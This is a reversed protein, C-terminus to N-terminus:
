TSNMVRNWVQQSVECREPPPLIFTFSLVTTPPTSQGSHGGGGVTSLSRRAHVLVKLPWCIALLREVSFGLTLLPEITVCSYNVYLYSIFLWWPYRVYRAIIKFSLKSLQFVLDNIAIATLYVASSNKKHLRLWVIASAINGPIGLAACVYPFVWQFTNIRVWDPDVYVRPEVTANDQQGSETLNM